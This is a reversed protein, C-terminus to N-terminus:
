IVVTGSARIASSRNLELAEGQSYPLVDRNEPAKDKLVFGRPGLVKKFGM